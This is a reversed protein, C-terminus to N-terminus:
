LIVLEPCSPWNPYYNVKEVNEYRFGINHDATTDYDEYPVAYSYSPISHVVTEELFTKTFSRCMFSQFFPLKDTKQLNMKCFSGSDLYLDCDVVSGNISRASKTSWWNEPLSTRNAWSKIEGLRNIDNKGTNVLYEEDRTNNYGQFFGMKLMPPIPIPIINDGGNLIGSLVYILQSHSISLLPDNYGDFLIERVSHTIVAYGGTEKLMPKAGEYIMEDPNTVNFFFFRMVNNIPPQSLMFTSYGYSYDKNQRFELHKKVQNFYISPVISWNFISILLCVLSFILTCWEWLRLRVM